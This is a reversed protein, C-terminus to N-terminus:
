LARGGDWSSGSVPRDGTVTPHPTQRRHRGPLVHDQDHSAHTRWEEQEEQATAYSKESPGRSLDSRNPPPTSPYRDHPDHPPSRVRMEYIGPSTAESSDSLRNSGYNQSPPQLTYPSPPALTTKLSSPGVDGQVLYPPQIHTPPNSTVEGTALRYVPSPTPSPEPIDSVSYYSPQPSVPESARGTPNRLNTPLPTHIEGELSPKTITYSAYAQAEVDSKGAANFPPTDLLSTDQMATLSIGPSRTMTPEYPNHLVSIESVSRTHPEHFMPTFELKDSKKKESRRHQIGLRDKLDGKVWM